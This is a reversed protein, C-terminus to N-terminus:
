DNRIYQVYQGIVGIHAIEYNSFLLFFGDFYRLKVACPPSPIRVRIFESVENKRCAFAHGSQWGVVSNCGSNDLILVNSMDYM